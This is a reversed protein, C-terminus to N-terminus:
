ALCIWRWNRAYSAVDGLEYGLTYLHQNQRGVFGGGIKVFWVAALGASVRITQRVTKSEFDEVETVQHNGIAISLEANTAKEFPSGTDGALWEVVSINLPESM